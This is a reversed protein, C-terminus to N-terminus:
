HTLILLINLVLVFDYHKPKSITSCALSPFYIKMIMRTRKLLISFNKSLLAETILVDGFQLGPVFVILGKFWDVSKTFHYISFMM